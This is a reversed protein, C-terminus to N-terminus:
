SPSGSRGAGCGGLRRREWPIDRFGGLAGHHSRAHRDQAARLDRSYLRRASPRSKRSAVAPYSTRIDALHGSHLPHYATQSDPAQMYVTTGRTESSTAHTSPKANPYTSQSTCTPCPQSTAPWSCAFEDRALPPITRRSGTALIWGTTRVCGTM